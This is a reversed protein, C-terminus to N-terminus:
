IKPVSEGGRRHSFNHTNGKLVPDTTALDHGVGKALIRAFIYSVTKANWRRVPPPISRDKFVLVKAGVPRLIPSVNRSYNIFFDIHPPTVGNRM